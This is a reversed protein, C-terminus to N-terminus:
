RVTVTGRMGGTPSGHVSCFFTYTGPATFTVPYSRPASVPDGSSEFSPNGTSSVDHVGDAWVFTVTTGVAVEINAPEFRAGGSTFLRITNTQVPAPPPPPNPGGGLDGGDAGGCGDLLLIALAVTALQTLRTGLM